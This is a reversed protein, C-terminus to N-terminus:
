LNIQKQEPGKIIRLSVTRPSPKAAQMAIPQAIPEVDIFWRPKVWNPPSIAMCKLATEEANLQYGVVLLATEGFFTLQGRNLEDSQTTSVNSSEKKDDLKKFWLKILDSVSLFRLRRDEDAIIKTEPVEDFEAIVNAFVLDSVINAGTSKRYIPIDPSDRYRKIANEHCRWLRPIHPELAAYAADQSITAIQYHGTKKASESISFRSPQQNLKPKANSKVGYGGDLSHSHPVRETREM